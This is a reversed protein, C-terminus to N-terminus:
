ASESFVPWQNALKGDRVTQIDGFQLFVAESQTPRLFIFDDVDLQLHAPGNVMQQNTSKGFLGNPIIGAPSEYKAMWAGGYIFFTQARNPNWKPIVNTLGELGPIRTGQEKKLVPTAIYSAAQMSALTDLDFDTPKVLCSGASLDNCVTSGKHLQLTPSGAGNLCLSNIDINSAHEAARDIFSQYIAQSESYADARKKIIPPLKVVHPDYGMFGSFSLFESNAAIIDLLGDLQEPSKLGGRHLGVDLEINIRMKVGFEKALALYQKLRQESDILWQLQETPAFGTSFDTHKYFYRVAGIPMPKGLLVDSAPMEQTILSLFPQHFVMLKNTDAKQMIHKLLDTSPLSKVVVRYAAQENVLGELEAINNDLQNLDIVLTPKSQSNGKLQENINSFYADHPAGEKSPKTAIIAAVAAAVTTFVFLRRNM